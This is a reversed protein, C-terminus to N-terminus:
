IMAVNVIRRNVKCYRDLLAKDNKSLWPGGETTGASYAHTQAYPGATMTSSELGPVSDGAQLVRAAMRSAVLVVGTPVPDPVAGGREELYADILEDAEELLGPLWLIEDETLERRLRKKVDDQQAYTM